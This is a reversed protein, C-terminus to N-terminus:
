RRSPKTLDLVVPTGDAADVEATAALYRGRFTTYAVVTWAGGPVARIRFAGDGEPLGDMMVARDVMIAVNAYECGPPLVVRGTVEFGVALEIEPWPENAALARLLWCRDTEFERVYLNYRVGKRLGELRVTGDDEVGHQSPELDTTAALYAHGSWEPKWGLIRLTRNAGIDLVLETEQVGAPVVQRPMGASPVVFGAPLAVLVVPGAPIDRLVVEGNVVPGVPTGYEADPDEAWWVVHGEGEVPRGGGDVLRVRLSRTAPAPDPEILGSECAALVVLVAALAATKRSM